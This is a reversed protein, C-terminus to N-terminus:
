HGNARGVFHSLEHLIIFFDFRAHGAVRLLRWDWIVRALRRSVCQAGAPARHAWFEAGIARLFISLEAPPIDSL